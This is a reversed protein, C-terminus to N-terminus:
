LTIQNPMKLINQSIRGILDQNTILITIGRLLFLEMQWYLSDTEMFDIIGLGDSTWIVLQAVIGELAKSKVKKMWLVKMSKFKKIRTSTAESLVRLYDM